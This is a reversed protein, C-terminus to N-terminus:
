KNLQDHIYNVILGYDNNRPVLIAQGDASTDSALVNDTTLAIHNAGGINARLFLVALDAPSLNTRLAPQLANLVGFVRWWSTPRKLKAAIAAVLRQQRQSRAFDSAEEPQEAYRARAYRIATEGNMHQRGATFSVTIWSPDIAPDDNAPYQATFSREVNVDVGGLADVLARFGRFDITAWRDVPLGTVQSVKLTAMQGGAAPDDNASARGYAYASNIKAYRGSDPPVQVWLDRPVSIEATKASPLDSHLLVLSDTLYAGDHGQGGYGLVLVNAQRGGAFPWLHASWLPATSVAGMFVVLRVAVAVVAVLLVLLLVRVFPFRRRPPVLPPGPQKDPPDWPYILNPPLGEGWSPPAAAPPPPPTAARLRRPVAPVNM